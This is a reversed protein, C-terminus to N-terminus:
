ILPLPNLKISKNNFNLIFVQLLYYSISAFTSNIRKVALALEILCRDGRTATRYLHVDRVGM